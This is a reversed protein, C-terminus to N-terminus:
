LEHYEINFSTPENMTMVSKQKAEMTIIDNKGTPIRLIVLSLFHNCNVLRQQKIQERQTLLWLKNAYCGRCYLLTVFCCSYLWFNPCIFLYSSSNQSVSFKTLDVFFLYFLSLCMHPQHTHSHTSPSFFMNHPLAASVFLCNPGLM